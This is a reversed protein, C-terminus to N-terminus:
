VQIEPGSIPIITPDRDSPLLQAKPVGMFEFIEIVRYKSSTGVISSTHHQHCTTLGM